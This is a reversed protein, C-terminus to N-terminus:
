GRGPRSSGRARGGGTRGTGARGAAQILLPGGLGPGRIEPDGGGWFWPRGGEPWGSLRRADTRVVVRAQRSSLLFRRGGWSLRFSYGIRRGVSLRGSSKAPGASPRSVAVGRRAAHERLPQAHADASANARTAGQDPVATAAPAAWGAWVTDGRRWAM